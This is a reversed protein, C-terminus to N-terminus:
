EQGGKKHGNYKGARGLAATRRERYIPPFTLDGLQIYLEHITLARRQGMRKLVFLKFIEKTDTLTDLLHPQHALLSLITQPLHDKQRLTLIAPQIDPARSLECLMVQVLHCGRQLVLPQHFDIFKEM